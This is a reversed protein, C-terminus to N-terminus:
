SLFNKIITPGTPTLISEPHFQIGHADHDRLSIGMIQGTEDVATVVFEPPLTDQDVLWSHYRGAEIEDPLGQFLRNKVLIRIKSKQGHCAKTHNLLGGGFAQALAQHGLCVGLMPTKPAYRQVLPLLNAMESPLGPGPSLIIRNYWGAEELNAKDHMVIDLRDLPSITEGIAQALNRTFSDRCDLL